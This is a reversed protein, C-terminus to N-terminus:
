CFSVSRGPMPNGCAAVFVISVEKCFGSTPLYDSSSSQGVELLRFMFLCVIYVVFGYTAPVGGQCVYDNLYCPPITKRRERERLDETVDPQIHSSHGRPASPQLRESSGVHPEIDRDKNFSCQKSRTQQLGQSSKQQSHVYGTMRIIRTSINVGFNLEGHGTKYLVQQKKDVQGHKPGHKTVKDVYASIAM